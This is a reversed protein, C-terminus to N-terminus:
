LLAENRPGLHRALFAELARYFEFQNEENSFGHGEDDKVLYEVEVGRARLAEVIQDSEAKKVRPDHVGQAVLLPARIRHAQFFPSTARLREADREPHGVMEHVMELFPKWYPPFSEIWTFLNSVGVYSAGCAFLEPTLTLGSLAAYGGYSAGYIAVRRPDALGREVAWGVGDSVDDQMARGWQGFGARWFDRGYGTSGRFNTQLVAYGRNALFQVEPDFGWTDRHWPGGHPHVVLPLGRPEAGPPLTLYGHLELGDRAAYTIPEVRALEDESLWPASEFLPELSPTGDAAVELLHYGGRTRDGGAHVVQRTEDRSRSVVTVEHEPLRERLFAHLDAARPDFFRHERRETVFTAATLARRRRSTRIGEVDVRPHEYLVELERGAAPDWRVLAARDRGVNSVAWVVEEDFAFALPEVTETFDHTAVSRWEDQERERYLVATRVGDTVTALRLRGEADTIWRQVRGPNQAVLELEGTSARLRYVDFVERARANTRVLIEDPVEELDDVLGCKVGPPTLERPESGDRRVSFLRHDEDGATDQLFVLREDDAWVFGAVDRADTASVRREEGTDLDRVHVNLRRRWPALWALRRGDPSLRAGTREPKRFFDELPIRRRAM